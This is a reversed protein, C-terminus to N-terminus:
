WGVECRAGNRLYLSLLNEARSLWGVEEGTSIQPDEWVVIKQRTWAAVWLTDGVRSGERYTASTPRGIRSSGLSIIMMM